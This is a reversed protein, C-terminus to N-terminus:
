LHFWILLIPRWSALFDLCSGPTAISRLIWSSWGGIRGTHGEEGTIRKVCLTYVTVDAVPGRSGLLEAPIDDRGLAKGLKLRHEASVYDDFVLAPGTESADRRRCCVKFFVASPLFFPAQLVCGSGLSGVALAPGSPDPARSSTPTCTLCVVRPWVSRAVM